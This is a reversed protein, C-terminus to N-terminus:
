GEAELMIAEAQARTRVSTGSVAAAARRLDSWPLRRWDSTAKSWEQPAPTFEPIPQEHVNFVPVGRSAYAREVAPWRGDTYVATALADPAVFHVPNRHVRGEAHKSKTTGYYFEM